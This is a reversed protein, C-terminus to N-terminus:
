PTARPDLRVPKTDAFLLFTRILYYRAAGAREILLEQIRAESEPTDIPVALYAGLEGDRELEVEPNQLLRYYWGRFTHNSQVWLAGDDDLVVLRSTHRRGEEDFTHLVGEAGGRQLTPQLWAGVGDLSLALVVFGLPVGLFWKWRAAVASAM